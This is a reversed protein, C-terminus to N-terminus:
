IRVTYQRADNKNAKFAIWLACLAAFYLMAFEFTWDIVAFLLFLTSLMLNTYLQRKKFLSFTFCQEVTPELQKMNIM